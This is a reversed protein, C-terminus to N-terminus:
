FGIGHEASISGKFKRMWKFIAPEMLNEIMDAKKPDLMLCFHLNGDGVHGLLACKCENNLLKKVFKTM